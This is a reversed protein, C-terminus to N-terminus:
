GSESTEDGPRWTGDSTLCGDLKKTAPRIKVGLLTTQDLNLHVQSM